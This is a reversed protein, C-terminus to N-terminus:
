RLYQLALVAVIVIAVVTAGSNLLWARRRRHARERANSMRPIMALVPLQLGQVVDVDMHFSRDRLELLAVLALALLLGGIASAAAIRRRNPSFPREPLNAPDLVKFQEGIQRRELNAAVKSEERKGLLSTYLGRMTDYDRMLETMESERTPVSDLKAQYESVSARLASLQSEKQALQRNLTAREEQFQAERTSAATPRSVRADPAATKREEAAKSEMDRIIRNLRIIDPHEPKLRTSLERLLRRAAALRDTNNGAPLGDADLPAPAATGTPAVSADNQASADALGREIVFLRDRDRSVSDTLGQIQVQLTQLAQLNSQAQSPLEGGHARRYAELKKEHEILRARAEQLQTDLFESTAEALIERDRLNEEIFLSALRETVKQAVAPHTADYTVRFADGRVPAAHIDRRMREVVDEMATTSREETYLNLDAIIRELRTRSLIQQSISQLRDEIRATVTSRVYTEPVRQPVILILTESRYRDPLQQLVVAAVAVVLALPALILWKRRLAIHLIDEPTYKRGPIM